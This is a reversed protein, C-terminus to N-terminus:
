LNTLEEQGICAIGKEELAAAAKQVDQVHFIMYAHDTSKRALFAYMYEVNVGGESLIKLVNNLGGPEDPIAVGVVKTITYIYGEDKLMTSAAYADDVIIRVIGFESTEALSLARMNINNQALVDTLQQLANPIIDCLQILIQAARSDGARETDYAMKELRKYFRIQDLFSELAEVQQTLSAANHFARHLEQLPEIALSRGFEARQLTSKAQSTWYGSFGDPHNVWPKKWASGNVNWVYAYNEVLDCLDPNLPSLASRLYHLVDKQEFGELAASLATFITSVVPNHLIPDTGATYFPIGARNLVRTLPARYNEM